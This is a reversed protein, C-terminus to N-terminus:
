WGPNQQFNKNLVLQDKPLPYLYMKNDWTRSTINTYVRINNQADRVVNDVPSNGKEDRPYTAKYADTLKMGLISKPNNILEGAKWRLLDKFRYGDGALEVRRERRIEQLPLSISPFPTGPDPTLNALLMDPMGVRKRLKNVSMNLDNQSLQGLEAKAEAYNLLVEAYRFIFRDINDHNANQLKVDSSRGKIIQYGTSTANTGINPRALKTQSGDENITIAYGPTAITQPYRPDRNKVENEPTDDGAYLPSVSIPKGDKCLYSEVLAKSYGDGNGVGRSYNTTNINTIFIRSLIAEKNKTLDDQIFLNKYDIDPNGTSYIEYKGSNMLQLSADAAAQLFPEADGLNQYKRFTGEWLCIRSKLALAAYKHLRNEATPEALHAIAFDLDRLVFDMVKKHPDRPNYLEPSEENLDTEYIPVDGFRVVKDWYFMARFFRAEANYKDKLDQGLGPDTNKKLFYNCARISSWDSAAWGGGSGPVQYTGALFSNMSNPVQNDSAADQNSYEVPLSTYFQNNYLKLDNETKFFMGDTFKDQPNRDLFNDQKCSSICSLTIVAATYLFQKKNLKM